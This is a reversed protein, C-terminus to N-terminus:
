RGGGTVVFILISLHELAKCFGGMYPLRASPKCCHPGCYHEFPKTVNVFLFIKDSQLGASNCM